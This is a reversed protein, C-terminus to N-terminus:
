ANLPELWALIEAVRERWGAEGLMWHGHGPYERYDFKEGYWAAMGRSAGIPIIHDQAGALCLMPCKIAERDVRNSGALNLSGFGLQYAARGSEAIMDGFLRVRETEPMMNFVLYDAEWRQLRFSKRWLGWTLFPRTTYPLMQPRLPFVPAPTASNVLVAARLIGHSALKQAIFGGMSHGIVLPRDHQAVERAVAEVYDNVSKNEVASDAEGEAHGPLAIATCPYGAAEFAGQWQAWVSPRCWMGHVFIIQPRM